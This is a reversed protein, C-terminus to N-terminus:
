FLTFLASSPSRFTNWPVFPHGARNKTASQLPGGWAPLYVVYWDVSLMDWSESGYGRLKRGIYM